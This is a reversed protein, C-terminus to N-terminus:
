KLYKSDDFIEAALAPDITFRDDSPVPQNVSFDTFEVHLSYTPTKQFPANKRGGYASFVINRPYRFVKGSSDTFTGVETVDLSFYLNGDKDFRQWGIPYFADKTSFRVKYSTNKFGWFHDDDAKFQIWVDDGAKAPLEVAIVREPLSKFVDGKCFQVLPLPSERVELLHDSCFEFNQVFFDATRLDYMGPKKHLIALQKNDHHLFRYDNGDYTGLMHLTLGVPGMETQDDYRFKNGALEFDYSGDQQGAGSAYKADATLKMTTKFSASYHMSSFYDGLSAVIRVVMEKQEDSLNVANDTVKGTAGDIANGPGPITLSLSIGDDENVAAMKKKGDIQYSVLLTKMKGFAPDGGIEDYPQKWAIQLANDKVSKQVVATVDRWSGPAGCYAQLIRLGPATGTDKAANDLMEQLIDTLTGGKGPAKPSGANAAPADAQALLLNPSQMKEVALITTGAALLACAGAVIGIKIKIWTMLKLTSKLLTLTPGGIAAGKSLAISSLSATMGAPAAQVANASLLAGVVVVPVVVGRKAFLTKLKALARTVRKGAAAENIGLASGVEALSKNEFFRMLVASRDKERLTSMADDLHPAIQSWNPDDATAPMNMQAAEHERQQRRKQTKVADLAAYRATRYLWGALITGKGLTHAKRALIIFAVQTVEEALHPDHVQRLASSHVLDIHRRVLEAFAEHSQREVYERLLEFDDMSRSM